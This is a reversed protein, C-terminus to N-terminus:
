KSLKHWIQKLYSSLFILPHQLFDEPEAIGLLLGNSHCSPCAPYHHNEQQYLHVYCQQCQHCEFKMPMPMFLSM